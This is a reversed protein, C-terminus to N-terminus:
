RAARAIAGMNGAVTHAMDPPVAGYLRSELKAFMEYEDRRLEPDSPM